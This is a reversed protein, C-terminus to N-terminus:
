EKEHAYRVVIGGKIWEIRVRKDGAFFAETCRKWEDIADAPILFSKSNRFRFEMESFAEVKETVKRVSVALM